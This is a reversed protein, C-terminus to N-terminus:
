RMKRGGVISVWDEDWCLCCGGAKETKIFAYLATHLVKKCGSHKLNLKLVEFHM